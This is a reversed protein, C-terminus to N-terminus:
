NATKFSQPTFFLVTGIDVVKGPVATASLLFVELLDFRQFHKILLKSHFHRRTLLKRKWFNRWFITTRVETTFSKCFIPFVKLCCCATALLQLNYAYRQKNPDQDIKTSMWWTQRKRFKLQEFQVDKREEAHSRLLFKEIEGWAHRERERERERCKDGERECM